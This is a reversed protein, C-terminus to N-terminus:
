RSTLAANLLQALRAGARRLQAEATPTWEPFYGPDLVPRSPYFGPQLVIACSAEAWLNASPPLPKRPLDVAMPMSLLADLYREDSMRQQYFLRSDWLAHLNTGFGADNVQTDNGGRDRAYGAHLPQHVDGVFHVVFKLADRRAAMSQRRDALIAAQTHIAEVVCDDGRCDRRAVYRCGREGINVFHWRATRRYFAADTDRLNDAWNAVGARTPDAEGALLRAVERRADASLEEEALRGVLRHGQPGWGVAPFVTCFLVLALCGRATMTAFSFAM